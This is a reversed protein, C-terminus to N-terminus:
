RVSQLLFTEQRCSNGSRKVEAPSCSVSAGRKDYCVHIERLFRGGSGCFPLVADPAFAPNAAKFAGIFERQSVRVPAVPRQYDAPVKIGDKLRASLAFYASPDLGSCTGHKKWEHEIMRPSPFLPAYKARVDGPLRENSCSDPYGSRHQPWLGHLVFGLPRSRDCQNVDNHTACYAPSWSLAVAYYDFQGAQDRPRRADAANSLALLTIFFISRLRV